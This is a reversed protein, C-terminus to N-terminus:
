LQKGPLYEDLLPVVSAAFQELRRESQEPSENPYIPTILRVLAGDTRKSTLADWFTFLKLEYISNVIRGRQPFWYYALEKSGSREMLARKVPISMNGKAPILVQRNGSEVFTWGNGPLCTDPTHVSTGKQQSDYYAVYFNISNHQPDEYNILTYDSVNMAKLLASDLPRRAGSWEGVQLPFSGFSRLAPVKQRLEIGQSLALTAALLIVSSVFFPQLLVKKIGNGGPGASIRCEAPGPPGPPLASAPPSESPPMKRLVATVCLLIVITLMFLLWGSLGHFFGEAVEPGWAGYLVGTAAIRLSNVAVALPISSLFIMARKWLHATFFYGIVLSLVMLPVLYRLGSCADVVQLQVFGIDIINGERYASVGWLQLLAVGLRSSLLRLQITIKSNLFDPLPFMAATLLLAFKVIKLKEWGLNIWCLGFVVLWFSSYLMFFEGGLEGLWFLCIGAILPIFGKWSPRSATSALPKRKEWILYLVALPIMACHTYDERAWDHTILWGFASRYVAFVLITYIGATIWGSLTIRKERLTADM